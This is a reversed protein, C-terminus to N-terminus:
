VVYKRYYYIGPPLGILMNLMRYVLTVSFALSFSSGLAVLAGVMSAEFVGISAVLGGVISFINSLTYAAVVVGPNVLQGFALFVLWITLMEILIYIISWFLGRRMTKFNLRLMRYGNYFEELFLEVRREDLPLRKRVFKSRNTFRFFRHSLRRTLAEDNILMLLLLSLTIIASILILTLRVTVQSVNGALFLCVFGFPLIILVGMASFVQRLLQALMAEGRPVEPQTAQSLYGAGALGAAPLIQNVFNVGLAVEYLRRIGLERSFIGLITQYYKANAFYSYLQVAVILIVVYWRLGRVFHIFQGVQGVNIIVVVALGILGLGIFIQKLKM